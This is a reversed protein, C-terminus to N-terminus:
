RTSLVHITPTSLLAGSRYNRQCNEWFLRAARLTGYLAKLLQVYLCKVKGEYAFYPSYMDYDIELFKDVMLGTFRVHVSEDEPMDAIDAQMFAGPVDIIAVDRDEMADVVM